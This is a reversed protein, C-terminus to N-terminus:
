YIIANYFDESTKNKHGRLSTYQQQKKGSNIYPHNYHGGLKLEAQHFKPIYTKIM